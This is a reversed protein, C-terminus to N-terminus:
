PQIENRVEVHPRPEPPRQLELQLVGAGGLWVLPIQQQPFHGGSLIPFDSQLLETGRRGIPLDEKVESNTSM